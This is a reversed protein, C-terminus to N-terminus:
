YYPNTSYGILVFFALVALGSLSGIVCGKLSEKVENNDETVFYVIAIGMPGAWMGYLGFLFVGTFMNPLTLGLDGLSYGWLRKGHLERPQILENM